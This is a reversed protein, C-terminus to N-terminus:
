KQIDNELVVTPIHARELRTTVTKLTKSPVLLEVHDSPSRHEEYM